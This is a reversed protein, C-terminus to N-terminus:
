ASPTGNGSTSGGLRVVADEARKLYKEHEEVQEEYEDIERLLAVIKNMFVGSLALLIM